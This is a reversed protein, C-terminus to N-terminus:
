RLSAPRAAAWGDLISKEHLDISVEDFGQVVKQRARERLVSLVDCSEGDETGLGADRAVDDAALRGDDGAGREQWADEGERV